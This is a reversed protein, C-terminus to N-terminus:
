FKMEYKDILRVPHYSLKSKRLNESGMDEERNIFRYGHEQALSCFSHNIAAYAGKFEINAKEIHECITEDNLRGGFAFAEMRGAVYIGCGICGLKEANKLPEKM